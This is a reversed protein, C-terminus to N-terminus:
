GLVRQVISDPIPMQNNLCTEALSIDAGTIRGEGQRIFAKAFFQDSTVGEPMGTKKGAEDTATATRRDTVSLVARRGAPASGIKDVTTQLSKILVDQETLTTQQAVIQESLSKLMTGQGKIVLAASQLTNLITAESVDFRDSLAKVLESGDVVEVTEGDATTISISKRLEVVGAAAKAPDTVTTAAAAAAAVAAADTGQKAAEGTAATAIPFSKTLTDLEGLLTDFATVTKSGTKSGSM